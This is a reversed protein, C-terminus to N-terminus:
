RNSTSKTPQPRSQSKAYTTSSKQTSTSSPKTKIRKTSTPRAKLGMNTERQTASDRTTTSCAQSSLRVTYGHKTTEQNRKGSETNENKSSTARTCRIRRKPSKISTPWEIDLEDLEEEMKDLRAFYTTIDDNLDWPLRTEALKAEKETNTLALCQEELHDVVDRVSLAGLELIDDKIQDLYQADYAEELKQKFATEYADWREWKRIIENRQAEKKRRTADAIGGTATPDYSEPRQPEVFRWDDDLPETPNAKNHAAIYTKTNLIAAAFGFRTGLPFFPHTTKAKAFEAGIEKRTKKV